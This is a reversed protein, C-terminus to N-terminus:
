RRSRMSSAVAFSTPSIGRSMQPPFRRIPSSTRRSSGATIIPSSCTAHWRDCTTSSTSRRTSTARRAISKDVNIVLHIWSGYALRQRVGFHCVDLVVTSLTRVALLAIETALIALALAALVLVAVDGAYGSPGTQWPEAVSVASWRRRPELCTADSPMTWRAVTAPDVFDAAALVDRHAQSSDEM